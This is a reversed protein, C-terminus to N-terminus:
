RKAFLRKIDFDCLALPIATLALLSTLQARYTFWSHVESHNGLAAYWAYPLLALLCLCLVLDLNAKQKRLLALILLLAIGALFVIGLPHLLSAFNDGIAKFQLAPFAQSKGIRIGSQTIAWGIEDDQLVLTAWLWKYIWNLCYGLFWAFGMRLLEHFPKECSQKRSALLYIVAPMGFTITPVTLYDFFSTCAGILAFSWLLQKESLPKKRSAYLLLLSAKMALVFCIFYQPSMAIIHTNLVGMALLFAFAFYSQLRNALALTCLGLLIWYLAMFVRRISYYNMLSLLPRMYLMYGHWYREYDLMYLADIFPQESKMGARELIYSDTFNDIRTNRRLVSEDEEFYYSPYRGENALISLGEAQHRYLGPPSLSLSCALLGWFILSLLLLAVVLLAFEKTYKKIM